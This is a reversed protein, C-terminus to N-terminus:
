AVFLDTQKLRFPYDGPPEIHILTAHPIKNGPALEKEVILVLFCSFHM